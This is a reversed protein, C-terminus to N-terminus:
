LIESLTRRAVRALKIVRGAPHTDFPLFRGLEPATGFWAKCTTPFHTGLALLFAALAEGKREADPGPEPSELDAAARRVLAPIEAPDGRLLGAAPRAANSFSSLPLGFPVLADWDAAESRIELELGLPGLVDRLTSLTPNARGAELNEMTALSVRARAAVVAQTLGLARRRRRIRRALALPDPM